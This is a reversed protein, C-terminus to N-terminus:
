NQENISLDELGSLASAYGYGDGPRENWRQGTWAGTEAVPDMLGWSVFSTNNSGSSQVSM